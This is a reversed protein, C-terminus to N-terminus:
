AKPPAGGLVEAYKLLDRAVEIIRRNGDMALKQLTRYAAPEDCGRQTILLRKADEVTRRHAIQTKAQDLEKQLAAFRAFTATAVDLTARASEPALGEVMYSSVGRDLADRIAEPSRDRAVLVVPLRHTVGTLQELTDRKPSDVEVLVLDPKLQLVKDLLDATDDFRYVSSIGIGKLVDTVFAARDADADVLLIRRVYPAPATPKPPPPNRM